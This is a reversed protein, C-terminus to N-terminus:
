SGAGPGVAASEAWDVALASGVRGDFGWGAYVVTPGVAQGPACPVDAVAAGVVGVLGGSRDIGAPWDGAM